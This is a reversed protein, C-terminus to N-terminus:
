STSSSMRRATSTCPPGGELVKTYRWVGFSGGTQERTALIETIDEESGAPGSFRPGPQPTRCIGRERTGYSNVCHLMPYAGADSLSVTDPIHHRMGGLLRPRQGFM